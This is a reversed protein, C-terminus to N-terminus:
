VRADVVDVFEGAKGEAQPNVRSSPVIQQAGAAPLDMFLGTNWEAQSHVQATPAVQSARGLADFPDPTGFLRTTYEDWADGSM